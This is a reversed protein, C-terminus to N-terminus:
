HIHILCLNRGNEKGAVVVVRVNELFPVVVVHSNGSRVVDGEENETGVSAEFVERLIDKFEVLTLLPILIM